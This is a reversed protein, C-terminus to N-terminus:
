QFSSMCMVGYDPHISLDQTPNYPPGRLVREPEIAMAYLVDGNLQSTYSYNEILQNIADCQQLFNLKDHSGALDPRLAACLDDLIQKTFKVLWPDENHIHAIVHDVRTQQPQRYCGGGDTLPYKKRIWSGYTALGDM